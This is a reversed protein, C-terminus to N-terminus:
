RQRWPLGLAKWGGVRGRHGQGDLPGEFGDAVNWTQYGAAALTQAAKLSRVGSRCLVFVPADKVLGKEAVQELFVPNARMEPYIQWPVAVVERGIGGLDPLGVFTWEEETRVDLLQAAQNRRLADWAQSPSLEGQFGESM